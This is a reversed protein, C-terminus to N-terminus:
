SPRVDQGLAKRRVHGGYVALGLGALARVLGGAFSDHVASRAQHDTTRYAFELKAPKPVSELIHFVGWLIALLGLGILVLGLQARRASQAGSEPDNM